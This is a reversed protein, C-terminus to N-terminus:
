WAEACIGSGMHGALAVGAPYATTPGWSRVGVSSGAMKFRPLGIVPMARTFLNDQGGLLEIKQRLTLKNLMTHAEKEIAPSDPLPAQAAAVGGLLACGLLASLMGAGFYIKM